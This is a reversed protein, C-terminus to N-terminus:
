SAFNMESIAKLFQDIEPLRLTLPPLLRLVSTDDAVGTIIKRELLAQQYPKANGGKFKIGILYGLGRLEEVTDLKKLEAYLYESNARVNELLKDDRIVEITAELAACALPGGGFTTGLDSVKIEGAIDETMLVAGMPVGSAIGKALTVMDPVVNFRGAFFFEGTRGMGTQVEDYILMANARDCAARLAQYFEPAAMRVGGMSQIPELIVAATDEDIMQAIAATDGFPAYVHGPLMPTIGERYKPLGTAALSGPTRGHFGGEFSIVKERETLKRAIKIANENAETGSNCFFTKTLLSPAIEVLKKAARARADNYVLNSYFILRAAQDAIAKVIRPHSHGTSVVAHGGYLDLYRDGNSTTVWVDDGREVVFPFKKYTAVQYHEEVDIISEGQPQTSVIIRRAPLRRGAPLAPM